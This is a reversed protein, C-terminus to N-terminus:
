TGTYSFRCYATKSFHSASHSSFSQKILTFLRTHSKNDGSAAVPPTRYFFTDKFIECVECSFVLTPTEKQYYQLAELSCCKWFSVWVCINEQWTQSIKLAGIKFFMQTSFTKQRQTSFMLDSTFFYVRFHFLCLFIAWM